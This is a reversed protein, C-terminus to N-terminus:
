GFGSLVDRARNALAEFAARKAARAEAKKRDRYDRQWFLRKYKDRLAKTLFRRDVLRPRDCVLFDVWQHNALADRMVWIRVRRMWDKLDHKAKNRVAVAERWIQRMEQHKKISARFEKVLVDLEDLACGSEPQAEIVDCWDFRRLIKYALRGGRRLIDGDGQASLRVPRDEGLRPRGLRPIDLFELVEPAERFGKQAARHIARVCKLLAAKCRKKRRYAERMNSRALKVEYFADHFDWSAASIGLSAKEALQESTGLKTYYDVLNLYTHFYRLLYRSQDVM